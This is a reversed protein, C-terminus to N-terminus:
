QMYMYMYMTLDLVNLRLNPQSESLQCLSSLVVHFDWQSSMPMACVMQMDAPRHLQSGCPAFFCMAYVAIKWM